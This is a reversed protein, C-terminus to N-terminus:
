GTRRMRLALFGLGLGVLAIGVGLSMQRVQQVAPGGLAQRSLRGAEPSTSADPTVAPLAAPDTAAPEEEDSDPLDDAQAIEQPTLQRGPRQRGEGAPLGALPSQEDQPRPSGASPSPSRSVESPSASPPSPLPAPPAPAASPGASTGPGHPDSPDASPPVTPTASPSGSPGSPGSPGPPTASPEATAATRPAVWASVPASGGAATRGDAYAEGGTVAGLAAAATLALCAVCWSPRSPLHGSAM